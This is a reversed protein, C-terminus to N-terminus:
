APAEEDEVEGTGDCLACEETGDTCADCDMDGGCTPCEFWEKGDCESCFLAGTGECNPCEVKLKKDPRPKM